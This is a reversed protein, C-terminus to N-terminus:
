KKKDGGCKVRKINLIRFLCNKFFFMFKIIIIKFFVFGVGWNNLNCDWKLLCKLILVDGVGWSFNLMLVCLVKKELM